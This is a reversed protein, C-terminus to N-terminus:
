RRGGRHQEGRGGVLHLFEVDLRAPVPYREVELRSGYDADAVGEVTGSRPALAVLDLAHSRLLKGLPVAHLPHAAEYAEVMLVHVHDAGGLTMIVRLEGAAAQCRGGVAGESEVM